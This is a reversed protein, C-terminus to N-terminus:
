FKLRTLHVMLLPPLSPISSSVSVRLNYRRASQTPKERPPRGGRFPAALESAAASARLTPHAARTRATGCAAARASSVSAARRRRQSCTDATDTARRGGRGSPRWESRRAASAEGATARRPGCACRRRELGERERTNRTTIWYKNIFKVLLIIFINM